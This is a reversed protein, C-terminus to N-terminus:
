AAKSVPKKVYWALWICCLAWGLTLDIVQPKIFSWPFGWWNMDSMAGQIIAFLGFSWGTLLRSGFSSFAGYYIVLAALLVALLAHLGGKMITVPDEGQMSSHYFVMAWPKGVNEMMEDRIEKDSKKLAPDPYPIVHLGDSLHHDNMSQLVAEQEPSYTWLDKHFGGAWMLSQYAFFIIAGVVTGIIIKKM